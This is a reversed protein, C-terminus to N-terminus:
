FKNLVALRGYYKRAARNYAQAALIKTPFTGLYVNKRNYKIEARFKCGSEYVGRYGTVNPKRKWLHMLEGHDVLALNRKCLNKPNGDIYHVRKGKPTEMILDALRVKNGNVIYDWRKSMPRWHTRGLLGTLRRDMVFSDKEYNKSEPRTVTAEKERKYCGIRMVVGKEPRGRKNKAPM